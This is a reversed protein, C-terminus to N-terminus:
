DILRVIPFEVYGSKVFRHPPHVVKNSVLFNLMGKNETYDKIAVEDQAIQEDPLNSSATAVPSGDLSDILCLAIRQNAYRKYIIEVDWEKYKM